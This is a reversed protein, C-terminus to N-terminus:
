TDGRVLLIGFSLFLARSEREVQCLGVPYGTPLDKRRVEWM